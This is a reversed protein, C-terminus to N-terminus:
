KIRLSTGRPELKALQRILENQEEVPKALEARIADTNATVTKKQFEAM